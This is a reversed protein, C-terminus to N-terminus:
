VWESMEHRSVHWNILLTVCRKVCFAFNERIDHKGALDIPDKRFLQLKEDTRLELTVGFKKAM